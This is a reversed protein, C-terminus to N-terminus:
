AHLVQIHLFDAVLCKLFLCIFDFCYDFVELSFGSVLPFGCPSWSLIPPYCWMMYWLLFGWFVQATSLLLSISSLSLWSRSVESLGSGWFLNIGDVPHYHTVSSWCSPVDILAPCSFPVFFAWHLNQYSYLTLLNRGLIGLASMITRLLMQLFKSFGSFNMLLVTIWSSTHSWWKSGLILCCIICHFCLIMECPFWFSQM